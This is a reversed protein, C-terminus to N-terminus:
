ILVEALEMEYVSSDFEIQGIECDSGARFHQGDARYIRCKPISKSAQYLEAFHKTVLSKCVSLRKESIDVGVLFSDKSLKSSISLFKMGPCCCLDLVHITKDNEVNLAWIAVESSIDMSISLPDKFDKSSTYGPLAFMSPMWRVRNEVSEPAISDPDTARFYRPLLKVIVSNLVQQSSTM